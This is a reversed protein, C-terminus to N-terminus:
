ATKLLFNVFYYILVGVKPTPAGWSFEPDAVGYYNYM